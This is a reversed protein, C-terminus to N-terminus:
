RGDSGETVGEDDGDVQVGFAALTRKPRRRRLEEFARRDIVVLEWSHEFRWEDGLDRARHGVPFAIATDAAVLKRIVRRVAGLQDATPEAEDGLDYAVRALDAVFYQGGTALAATVAREV